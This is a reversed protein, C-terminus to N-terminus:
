SQGFWTRSQIDWLSSLGKEVYILELTMEPSISYNLPPCPPLGLFGYNQKSTWSSVYWEPSNSEGKPGDLSQPAINEM